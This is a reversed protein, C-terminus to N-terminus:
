SDGTLLPFAARDFGMDDLRQGLPLREEAFTPPRLALSYAGEALAGVGYAAGAVVDAYGEALAARARSAVNYRINEAALRSRFANEALEDLPAGSDVRIGAAAYSAVIEGGRQTFIRHTERIAQKRADKLGAVYTKAERLSSVGGAIALGARPGAMLSTLSM